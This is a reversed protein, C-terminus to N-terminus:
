APARGSAPPQRELRRARGLGRGHPVRFGGDGRAHAPDRRPRDPRAPLGQLPHRPRLAQAAPQARPVLPRHPRAAREGPRPGAAPGAALRGHVGRPRHPSPHPATQAARRGGASARQVARAPRRRGCGRQDPRTGRRGRGGGPRRGARPPRVAPLRRRRGQPRGGRTHRVLRRAPGARAHLAVPRGAGVHPVGPTLDAGLRALAADDLEGPDGGWHLVRPLGPGRVDVLVAVGARRLLVPPVHAGGAGPPPGATSPGGGIGVDSM